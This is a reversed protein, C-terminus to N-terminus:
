DTLEVWLALEMLVIISVFYKSVQIAAILAVITAILGAYSFNESLV